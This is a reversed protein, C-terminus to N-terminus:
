PEPQAGAQLSEMIFECAEDKHEAMMKNTGTYDSKIVTGFRSKRAKRAQDEDSWVAHDAAIFVRSHKKYWQSLYPDTPSRISQIPAASYVFNVIAKIRDKCDTEFDAATM